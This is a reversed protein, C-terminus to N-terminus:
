TCLLYLQLWVHFYFNRVTCCCLSIISWTNRNFVSPAFLSLLSICSFFLAFNCCWSCNCCSCLSTYHSIVEVCCFVMDWLFFSLISQSMGIQTDSNVIQTLTGPWLFFPFSSETYFLDVGMLVDSISRFAGVSWRKFDLQYFTLVFHDGQRQLFFSDAFYSLFFYTYDCCITTNSSYLTRRWQIWYILIHFLQVWQQLFHDQKGLNM